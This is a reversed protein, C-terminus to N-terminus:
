TRGHRGISLSILLISLTALILPFAYRVHWPDRPLLLRGTWPRSELVQDYDTIWPVQPPDIVQVMTGSTGLPRLVAYHGGRADQIFAIAARDLAKDGKAFRVGELGLGLSRGVAALEAMSYGDPHRPPLAALLRDLTVPHGELHLVIFLANDGCDLKTTEEVSTARCSTSQVLSLFVLGLFPRAFDSGGRRTTFTM